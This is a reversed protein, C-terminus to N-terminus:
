KAKCRSGPTNGVAVYVRGTGPGVFKCTKQCQRFAAACEANGVGRYQECSRKYGECGKALASPAIAFFLICSGTAILPRKM